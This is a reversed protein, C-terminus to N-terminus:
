PTWLLPMEHKCPACWTAWFNVVVIKGHYNALSQSQGQLDPLSLEAQTEEPAGAVACVPLLMAILLVIRVYNM